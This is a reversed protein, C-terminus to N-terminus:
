SGDENSSEAPHNPARRGGLLWRDRFCAGIWTALLFGAPMAYSDDRVMHAVIAGGWYSSALLLGLSATKPILLLLGTMMGGIGILIQDDKLNAEELGKTVDEPAFGFVKGAGALILSIAVLSVLVWGIFVGVKGRDASMM